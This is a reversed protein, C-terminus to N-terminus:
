DSTTYLRIYKNFVFEQISKEDYENVLNLDYEPISQHDIISWDDIEPFVVPTIGLADTYDVIAEEVNRFHYNDAINNLTYGNLCYCQTVLYSLKELQTSYLATNRGFEMLPVVIMGDKGIQLRSEELRSPDVSITHVSSSNTEFIGKRVKKM